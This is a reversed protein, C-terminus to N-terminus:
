AMLRKVAYGKEEKHILGYDEFWTIKQWDFEPSLPGFLVQLLLELKGEDNLHNIFRIYHKVFRM